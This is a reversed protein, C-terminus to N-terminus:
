VWESGSEAAMRTAILWALRRSTPTTSRTCSPTRPRKSPGSRRCTVSDRWYSRSVTTLACSRQSTVTRIEDVGANLEDDDFESLLSMYRNRVMDLYVDKPFRLPFSEYSM